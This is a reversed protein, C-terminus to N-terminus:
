STWERVSEFKEKVEDHRGGGRRGRKVSGVGRIVENRCGYAGPGLHDESFHPNPEQLLGLNNCVPPGCPSNRKKNKANSIRELVYASSPGRALSNQTAQLGQLMGCNFCTAPRKRMTTKFATASQRATWAKSLATLQKERKKEQFLIASQTGHLPESQGPIALSAHLPCRCRCLSASTSLLLAPLLMLSPLLTRCQGV